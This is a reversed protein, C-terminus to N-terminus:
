QDIDFISYYKSSRDEVRLYQMIKYDRMLAETATGHLLYQGNADYVGLRGIVPLKQSQQLIFQDYQSLKVGAYAMVQRGLYNASTDGLPAFDADYNTWIMYPTVFRQSRQLDTRESEPSGYLADYFSDPLAPLHDGFMVIMTPEEVQSFYSLLYELAQDSEYILSLYTDAVACDANDVTVTTEVAGNNVDYGGHNQMTVNFLFLKDGRFAEYYEIIKEYNAKDSIYNRITEEGQFDDISIFEEFGMAPYVQDRHWNKPGYPHMAVPYYGQEKLTSAMGPEAAEGKAQSYPLLGMPMFLTSNGTLFEYESMCTNGGFTPVYVNGKVTNEQLSRYFPMYDRNTELEGLISLDSFAENMIVIINQAVTEQAPPAEVQALLAEVTKDSYDAPKEMSSQKLVFANSYWWGFKTFNKDMEYFDFYTGQMHLNLVIVAVIGAILFSARSILMRKRGTAPHLLMDAASQLLLLCGYLLFVTFMVPPFSFEYNGAVSMATSFSQIDTILFESGRFQLVYFNAVSALLTLLATVYFALKGGIAKLLLYIGLILLGNMIAYRAEIAYLNGSLLEMGVYSVLLLLAASLLEWPIQWRPTSYWALLVLVLLTLGLAAFWVPVYSFTTEYRLCLYLYADQRNGAVTLEKVSSHVSKVDKQSFGRVTIDSQGDKLDIRITYERLNQLEQEITGILCFTEGSLASIPAEWHYLQNGQKDELNVFVTATDTPSYNDFLLIFELLEGRLATIKQIITGDRLPIDTFQSPLSNSWYEQTRTEGPQTYLLSATGAILFLVLVGAFCVYLGKRMDKQKRRLYNLVASIKKM